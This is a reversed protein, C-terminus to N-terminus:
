AIEAEAKKAKRPARMEQKLAENESRMLDLEARLEVLEERVVRMEAESGQLWTKARDRLQQGGIGLQKLNNDAVHALQEITVIGLHKMTAVQTVTLLPFSEIPTGDTPGAEGAEFAMWARPFRKQDVDRVAREVVKKGDGPFKMKIYPVSEYVPRGESESRKENLVARNYFLGLTGDPDLQSAGNEQAQQTLAFNSM